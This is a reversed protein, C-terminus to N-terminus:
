GGSQFAKRVVDDTRKGVIKTVKPEAKERGRNWTDKGRTGPHHVSARVGIGPISLLKRRRGGSTPIQHAKIPNALLPLPGVAKINASDANIDYRAGIKAGRGSRVRSLRLDGGADGRMQDEQAEKAAQAAAHLTDRKSQEIAKDIKNIRKLLDSPMQSLPSVM